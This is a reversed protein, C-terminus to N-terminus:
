SDFWIEVGDHLERSIREREKEQGELLAMARHRQNSLQQESLEKLKDRMQILANGLIDADSAPTFYASFNGSGTDHAFKSTSLIRQVLLQISKNIEELEKFDFQTIEEKPIKGLALEEIYNRIILIPQSLKNAFSLTIIVILISFAFVIIVIYNRIIFVPKMAESVDIETIIALDRQQYHEVMRGVSLVPIDRYDNCLLKSEGTKFILQASESAVLIEQPKKKPFFRSESQM